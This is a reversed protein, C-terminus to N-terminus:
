RDDAACGKAAAACEFRHRAFRTRHFVYLCRFCLREFPQLRCQLDRLEREKMAAAANAHEQEQRLDRLLKSFERGYSVLVDEDPGISCLAKLGLRTNQDDPAYQADVKEGHERHNTAGAFLTM